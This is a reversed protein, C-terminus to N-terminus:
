LTCKGLDWSQTLAEAWSCKVSPYILAWVSTLPRFDCLLNNNSYTRPGSNGLVWWVMGPFLFHGTRLCSVTKLFGRCRSPLPVPNVFLSRRSTEPNLCLAESNRQPAPCSHWESPGVSSAEVESVRQPPEHAWFIRGWLRRTQNIGVWAKPILEIDSRQSPRWGYLRMPETSKWLLVSWLKDQPSGDCACKVLM